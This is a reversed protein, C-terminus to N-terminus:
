RRFRLLGPVGVVIGFKLYLFISLVITLCVMSLLIAVGIGTLGIAPVFLLTAAILVASSAGFAVLTFRESGWMNSFEVLPGCFARILQAGLLFYAIQKAEVYEAGFLLTIWFEDFVVFIAGIGATALFAMCSLQSSRIQVVNRKAADVHKAIEPAFITSLIIMPMAFGMSIAAAVRVLSVAVSDLLIGTSIISFHQAVGSIASVGLFPLTKIFLGGVSPSAKLISSPIQSGAAIAMSIFFSIAVSVAYILIAVALTLQEVFLLTVVLICFLVLNRSVYEVFTAITPRQNARLNGYQVTVWALMPTTLLALWLYPVEVGGFETLTLAFFGLITTLSVVLIAVTSARPAPEKEVGAFFYSLQRMYYESTGQGVLAAVFVAISIVLTYIGFVEITLIRALVIAVCLGSLVALIRVSATLIYSGLNM